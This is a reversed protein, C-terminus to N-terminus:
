FTTPNKTLDVYLSFTLSVWPIVSLIAISFIIIFLIKIVHIWTYAGVDVASSSSM